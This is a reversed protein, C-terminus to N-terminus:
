SRARDSESIADDPLDRMDDRNLNLGDAVRSRAYNLAADIPM